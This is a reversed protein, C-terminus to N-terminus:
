GEEEFDTEVRWGVYRLAAAVWCRHCRDAKAEAKACTCVLTHADTLIVREQSVFRTGELVGPALLGAKAAEWLQRRYGAKYRALVGADMTRGAKRQGILLSLDNQLTWNPELVECRLCDKVIAWVPPVDMM